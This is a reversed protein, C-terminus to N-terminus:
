NISMFKILKSNIDKEDFWSSGNKRAFYSCTLLISIYICNHPTFSFIVVKKPIRGDYSVM